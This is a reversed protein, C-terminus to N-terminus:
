SGGGVNWGGRGKQKAHRLVEIAMREYDEGTPAHGQKAKEALAEHQQRLLAAMSEIQSDDYGPLANITPAYVRTAGFDRKAIEYIANIATARDNEHPVRLYAIGMGPPSTLDEDIEIKIGTQTEVAKELKDSVEWQLHTPTTGDAVKTILTFVFEDHAHPEASILLPYTKGDEAIYQTKYVPAQTM